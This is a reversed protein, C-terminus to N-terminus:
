ARQLLAEDELVKKQESLLHIQYQPYLEQLPGKMDAYVDNVFVHRIGDSDLKKAYGSTVVAIGDKYAEGSATGLAAGLAARKEDPVAFPATHIDKKPDIGEDLLRLLSQLQDLKAIGHADYREGVEGAVQEFPEQTEPHMGHAVLFLDDDLNGGSKKRSFYADNFVQQLQLRLRDHKESETKKARLASRRSELAQPHQPTIQQVVFDPNRVYDPIRRQEM